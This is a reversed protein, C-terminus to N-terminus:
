ASFLTAIIDCDLSENSIQTAVCSAHPMNNAIDKGTLQLKQAIFALSTPQCTSMDCQETARSDM